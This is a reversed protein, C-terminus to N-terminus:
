VRSSVIARGTTKGRGSKGAAYEPRAKRKMMVGYFTAKLLDERVKVLKGDKRHYNRFEEFFMNCTSFVKFRGTKCRELVEMIIPEVPQSGGTEDKYRASKSLMRVGENRYLRKYEDGGRSENEGDHPWSVPIWDGRKKIASAHYPVEQKKERHEAYVYITDTDRDWALFAVATPHDWGFDIGNIRAWHRPIEIPDIRISEEAIPFVKGSGLIPVGKSRADREYDPYSELIEEKDEKSLHPADDWTVNKMYTGPKDAQYHVVLDTQGLLPTFTVLIRGKSTLIRTRSETYVRMVDPEEDMWIFHPATGQFKRWKQEYAKLNITTTGGRANKVQVTDIVDAIGCQRMKPKGKLMKKPIMGTGWLDGVGGFLEKQIIDRSSENTIAATWILPNKETIRYGEWWDPYMGTAHCATEYAASYTKGTRNAAMILREPHDKGAAYVEKQWPYPEFKWWKTTEDLAMFSELADRETDTLTIGSANFDVLDQM